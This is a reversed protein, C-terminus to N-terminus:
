LLGKEAFQGAAQKIKSITLASQETSGVFRRADLHTIGDAKTNVYTIKIRDVLKNNPGHLECDIVPVGNDQGYTIVSIYYDTGGIPLKECNM